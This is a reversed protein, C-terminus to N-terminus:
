GDREGQRAGREGKAEAEGGAGGGVGGRFLLECARGELDCQRFGCGDRKRNRFEVVMIGDGHVPPVAPRAFM